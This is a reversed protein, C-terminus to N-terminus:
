SAEAFNAADNTVVVEGAANEYTRTDLYAVIERGKFDKLSDGLSKGDTNVGHKVLHRRVADMDAGTEVWIRHFIRNETVDYNNGLEALEEDNVDSMPEKVSYVFMFYASTDGKGPKYSANRGRLLYSGVPLPKIEPIDDWSQNLIDEYSADESM